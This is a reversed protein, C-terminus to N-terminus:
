EATRCRLASLGDDVGGDGEGEGAARGVDDGCRGVVSYTLRALKILRLELGLLLPLFEVARPKM